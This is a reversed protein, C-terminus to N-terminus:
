QHRDDIVVLGHALRQGVQQPLEAKGDLRERRGFREERGVDDLSVLQRIRSTAIGPCTASGIQLLFQHAPPLVIGITKM